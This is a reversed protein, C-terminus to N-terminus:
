KTKVCYHASHFVDTKLDEINGNTKSVYNEVLAKNLPRTISENVLYVFGKSCGETEVKRDLLEKFIDENEGKLTKIAITNEVAKKVLQKTTMKKFDM